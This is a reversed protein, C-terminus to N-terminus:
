LDGNRAIVRGSMEALSIQRKRAASQIRHYAQTESLGRQILLNKANAILEREALRRKLDSIESAAAKLESFRAIAVSISPELSNEDVPKVLYGMVQTETAQDIFNRQSYATLLVIPLPAEQSLIRAATLGDMDPMKIDLLLLDPDYIKVKEVAEAGTRATAVVTHGLAHVMSKLGMRIVGEDDAIIIRLSHSQTAMPKNRGRKFSM